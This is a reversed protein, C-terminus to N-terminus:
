TSSKRRRAVGVVGFLGSAVLIVSAPEPTATVAGRVLWTEAVNGVVGIGPGSAINGSNGDSYDCHTYTHDFYATACRMKPGGFYSVGYVSDLFDAATPKVAWEAATAYRFGDQLTITSCDNNCPSAWAWDQGGFVIFNINPVPGALQAAAPSLAAASLLAAGILHHIKM